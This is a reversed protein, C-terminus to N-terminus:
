IVLRTRESCRFANPTTLSELVTIDSINNFHMRMDRKPEDLRGLATIDSVENEELNLHTLKTLNKLLRSTASTIIETAM